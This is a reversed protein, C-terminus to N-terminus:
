FKRHIPPQGAEYADLRRLVTNAMDAKAQEVAKNAPDHWTRSSQAGHHEIAAALDTRLWKLLTKDDAM